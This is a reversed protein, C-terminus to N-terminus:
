KNQQKAIVIGGLAPLSIELMNLKTGNECTTIKTRVADENMRNKGGFEYKDTTFIEEYRGMKPVCISFDARVEPSFNLIVMIEQGKKNKRRYAFVDPAEPSTEMWEFGDDTDDIEWLERRELYVESLASVFRQMEIHRPYNTMFWELENESNWERFQAFETGMFLLKKGPMTMMCLLMTRMCAFKEDYEGFCKELVSKRGAAAGDHSIPIIVNERFASDPITTILERLNEREAFSSSIYRYINEEIDKNERFRFGLGGGSTNKVVHGANSMDEAITIVDPCEAAITDNLLRFFEEAGAHICESDEPYLVSELAGIRLGDAHYERIWFMASSILFSRVEAKDLDFRLTGWKTNETLASGECEYLKSGDFAALGHEDKPFHVPVWDLIVGIGKEHLTNVFYRFDDPTGFRSTPAFYGTIEYGLSADYPHEMVPMLQVHTYGLDVLYGALRDAIERYNLLENNEEGEGRRWSGLHLEYINLPASYFHDVKPKFGRQKPCVVASRKKMWEGDNWQFESSDSVISATKVGTESYFAYPDAKLKTIGDIGTVSYKYFKGNLSTDAEVVAEWCGEEVCTMGLGNNWDTFDANLTVCSANPAWVRFTYRYNGDNKECHVGFYEYARNDTGQHFLSVRRSCIEQMVNNKQEFM